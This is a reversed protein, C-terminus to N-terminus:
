RRGTTCFLWDSAFEQHLYDRPHPLTGRERGRLMRTYHFTAPTVISRVSLWAVLESHTCPLEPQGFSELAVRFLVSAPLSRLEFEMGLPM